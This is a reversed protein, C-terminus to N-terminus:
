HLKLAIVVIQEGAPIDIGVTTDELVLNTSTGTNVPTWPQSGAVRSVSVFRLAAASAALDDHIRVDYIPFAYPTAPITIRYAFNEGVAATTQTNQKLAAAPPAVPEATGSAVAPGFCYDDPPTTTPCGAGTREYTSASDLSTWDIWVRNALVDPDPLPTRVM